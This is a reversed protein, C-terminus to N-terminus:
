EAKESALRAEKDFKAQLKLAIEEDFSIQYKKKMPKEPEMMIGKGKVQSSLQSSITTTTTTSKGPEQFVIGKVKPKTSKLEILSQALTIEGDDDTTITAATVTTAAGVNSVVNDAANVQAADEIVNVEGNEKNAWVGLSAEDGSSEVRASLGVKYLRKLKHTRSSRKKELKKVRRKMSDIENQQTTKTKELDLVRTQLTTCLAMLEDLKLRDEDSRLANGKPLLLDNSHKSVNKFRTQAITDGMTEQCRPGSGSEHEAELSSATTAVRVLSDGLEKHVAEDVVINTPGTPEPVQTDKRNPKKPKQTKQPPPSPQIFTPTHQPDTPM